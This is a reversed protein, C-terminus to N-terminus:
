KHIEGGIRSQTKESLLVYHSLPLKMNNKIVMEKKPIHKIFGWCQIVSVLMAIIALLISVVLGWSFFKWCFILSVLVYLLSCIALFGSYYIQYKIPVFEAFSFVLLVISFFRFTFM